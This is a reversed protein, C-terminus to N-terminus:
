VNFNIHNEGIDPGDCNLINVLTENDLKIDKRKHHHGSVIRDPNCFDAVKQIVSTVQMNEQVIDQGWNRALSKQDRQNYLIDSAQQPIDHTFLVDVKKPLIRLFREAQEDTPTEEECWSIMRELYKRNISLAGGFSALTANEWVWTHGRPIIKIRPFLSSTIFGNDDYYDDSIREDGSIYLM